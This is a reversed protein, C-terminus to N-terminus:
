RYESKVDANFKELLKEIKPNIVLMCYTNTNQYDNYYNQHYEEATYFNKLPEIKTVISDKNPQNEKSQFVVNKQDDNLYFIASRYQTGEDNGQKNLSTPDHTAWFIELLKGLSVVKPDFEVEVAEAFGTNGRSVEEYSPKASENGNAYGSVVKVVGNLRQFVAETCWFCGGAFVIKEM